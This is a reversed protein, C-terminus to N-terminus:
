NEDDRAFDGPRADAAEDRVFDPHNKSRCSTCMSYEMAEDWAKTPFTPVDERGCVDCPLDMGRKACVRCGWESDHDDCCHGLRSSCGHCECREPEEAEELGRQLADLAACTVPFVLYASRGHRSEIKTRWAGNAKRLERSFDARASSALQNVAVEILAFVDIAEHIVNQDHGAEAVEKGEDRMHAIIAALTPVLDNWSPKTRGSM